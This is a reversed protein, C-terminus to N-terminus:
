TTRVHRSVNVTATNRLPHEESRFKGKLGRLVGVLATRAREVEVEATAVEAAAATTSGLGVGIGTAVTV